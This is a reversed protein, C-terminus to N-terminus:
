GQVRSESGWRVQTMNKFETPIEGLQNHSIDLEELATMHGMERPVKPKRQIEM